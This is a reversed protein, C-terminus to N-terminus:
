YPHKNKLEVYDNLLDQYKDNTIEEFGMEYLRDYMFDLYCGNYIIASSLNRHSNDNRVDRRIESLMNDMIYLRDQKVSRYAQYFGLYQFNENDFKGYEDFTSIINDATPEFSEAYITNINSYYHDDIMTVNQKAKIDRLETTMQYVGNGALGILSAFLLVTAISKNMMRKNRKAKIKSPSSNNKVSNRAAEIRAERNIFFDDIFSVVMNKMDSSVIQNDTYGRNILRSEVVRTCSNM